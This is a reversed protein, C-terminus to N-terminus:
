QGTYTHEFTKDFGDVSVILKMREGKTLPFIESYQGNQDTPISKHSEMSQPAPYAIRSVMVGPKFRGDPNRVIVIMEVKDDSPLPIYECESRGSAKKETSQPMLKMESASVTTELVTAGFTYGQGPKLGNIDKLARGSPSLPEPSGWDKGDLQFQAIHGYFPKNNVSVVAVVRFVYSGNFLYPEQPFELTVVPVISHQQNQKAM